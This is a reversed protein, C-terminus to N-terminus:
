ILISHQNLQAENRACSRWGMKVPVDYLRGPATRRWFHRLGPAVVKAVPMGIDPQTHDFVLVELGQRELQRICHMLSDYVTEAGIELYDRLVNKPPELKNPQLYAHDQIKVKELWDIFVEDQTLYKNPFKQVIPLLQNVEVIARELAIVPDTHCGFAYLIEQKDSKQNYSIAVFTPIDLDSTIDLVHLQRGIKQYYDLTELLYPDNLVSFDVAPRSIENYWWIAAADREVLELLGQLVAEELTNGSACGNTDPYAILNCEERKTPYQAYCYEAPLYKFKMHTLSYFPSWDILENADFRAPVLSYFKGEGQNIRNRDDLQSDGFLMCDNPHIANELGNFAGSVTPAGGHYMISYREIAECLAGTRAQVDNKGKGGNASRNHLNLWFMSNSQLAMNKGAVYNYVPAGALEQYKNVYPVIGTIPSIHKRYREFTVEPPVSRYGGTRSTIVDRKLEIGKPAKELLGPEGCAQCQPRRVLPHFRIDEQDPRLEFLGATLKSKDNKYLYEIIQHIAWSRCWQQTLPHSVVPRPLSQDTEMWAKYLQSEKAYMELRHQLCAWCPATEQRPEFLPGVYPTTGQVKILLWTQGEALFRSNLAPLGVHQYDTTLVVVLSPNSDSCRGGAQEYAQVWDSVEGGCLNIFHLPQDQLTAALRTPDYGMERWYAVVEPEFVPAQRTIIGETELSRLIQIVGSVEVFSTDEPLLEVQSAPQTSLKQLISVPLKSELLISNNESTLFGRQEDIKHFLYDERLRYTQTHM